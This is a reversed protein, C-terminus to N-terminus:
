TNNLLKYSSIVNGNITILHLQLALLFLALRICMQMSSCMSLQWSTTKHCENFTEAVDYDVHSSNAYSGTATREAGQHRVNKYMILKLLWWVNFGTGRDGRYCWDLWHMETIIIYNIKYIQGTANYKVAALSSLKRWKNFMDESKVTETIYSAQHRKM